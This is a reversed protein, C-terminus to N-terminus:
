PKGKTGFGIQLRPKTTPKLLARLGALVVMLEEDHGTVRRELVALQKALEVHTRAFDRLRVFARVVYVSMEVARPSNLISAAMLAGHETFVWPRFKVNEGRKLTVSQSRSRHLEGAEQLTLQFAFDPPFRTANRKMAQNLARTEVGYLSALDADLIAKQGRVEVIRREVPVIEAGEGKTVRV